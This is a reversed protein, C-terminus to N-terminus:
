KGFKKGRLLFWTTSGVVGNGTLRHKQQFDIVAEKTKAGFMGDRQVPYGHIQLLGQLEAVDSGSRGLRLIRTGAKVNNKLATWTQAGVVGDIKLGHRKQFQKVAVETRWGFDGDIRIECGSSRLLEQMEAVAPGVDWPYLTPSASFAHFAVTAQRQIGQM